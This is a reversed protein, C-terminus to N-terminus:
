RGNADPMAWAGPMGTVSTDRFQVAVFAQAPCEAQWNEIAVIASNAGASYPMLRKMNYIQLNFPLTIRNVTRYPIGIFLLDL